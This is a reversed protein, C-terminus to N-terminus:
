EQMRNHPIREKELFKATHTKNQDNRAYHRGFYCAFLTNLILGEAEETSFTAIKTYLHESAPLTLVNEFRSRLYNDGEGTLVVTPIKNNILWESIRMPEADPNNGSYSIIIALDKSTLSRAMIGTERAPCVQVSKQITLMKRAFLEAHHIHPSVCFIVIRGAREMLSVARSVINFDLLDFTDSAAQVMVQYISRAITKDDDGEQFPYNADIRDASGERQLQSIYDKRFDKWGQYGLGQAFRVVTAKSTFSLSAIDQVSLNYLDNRHDLIVQAVAHRADSYQFVAEEVRQILYM